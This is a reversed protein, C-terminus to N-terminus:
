PEPFHIRKNFIHGLSAALGLRRLISHPHTGGARRLVAANKKDLMEATIIKVPPALYFVNVEKIQGTKITEDSTFQHRAVEKRTNPDLFIYDWDVLKITKAGANHIQV